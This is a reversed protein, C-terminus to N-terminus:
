SKVNTQHRPSHGPGYNGALQNHFTWSVLTKVWGNDAFKSLDWLVHTAFCPSTLGDLFFFVHNLCTWRSFQTRDRSSWLWVWHNLLSDDGTFTEPSIGMHIMKGNHHPMGTDMRKIDKLWTSLKIFERPRKPECKSRNTCRKDVRAGCVQFKCAICGWMGCRSESWPKWPKWPVSHLKRDKRFAAWEASEPRCLMVCWFILDSLVKSPNIVSHSLTWYLTIFTTWSNLLSVSINLSWYFGYFVLLLSKEQKDPFIKDTHFTDDCDGLRGTEPAALRKLGLMLPHWRASSVFFWWLAADCAWM